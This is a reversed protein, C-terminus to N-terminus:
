GRAEKKMARYVARETGPRNILPGFNLREYARVGPRASQMAAVLAKARHRLKKAQKLNM